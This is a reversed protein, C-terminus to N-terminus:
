RGQCIYMFVSGFHGFDGDDDNGVCVCNESRLGTNNTRNDYISAM